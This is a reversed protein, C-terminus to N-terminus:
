EQDNNTNEKLRRQLVDIRDTLINIRTLAKSLEGEKNTIEKRLTELKNIFIDTLKKFNESKDSYSKLNEIYAGQHKDLLQKLGQIKTKYISEQAEFKQKSLRSSKLEKEMSEIIKKTSSGEIMDIKLNTKISKFSRRIETITSLQNHLLSVLQAPTSIETKIIEKISIELNQMQSTYDEVNRMINELLEKKNALEEDLQKIEQELIPISESKINADALEKTLNEIQPLTKDVKEHMENNLDTM